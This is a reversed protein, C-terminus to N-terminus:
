AEKDSHFEQCQCWLREPFGARQGDACGGVLGRLLPKHTVKLHGCICGEAQAIM